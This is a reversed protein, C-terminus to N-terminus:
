SSGIMSAERWANVSYDFFWEGSTGQLYFLWNGTSHSYMYPFFEPGSFLWGAELDYFHINNEGPASALYGFGLELHNVLPYGTPFFWGFWSSQYWGDVPDSLDSFLDELPNADMGPMISDIFPRMLGSIDPAENSSYNLREYLVEWQDASPSNAEANIVVFLPQGGSTNFHRFFDRNYDEMVTEIGYKAIFTDSKARANGQVNLTIYTIPLGYPNGGRTQYHGVIGDEVNASANACFPCWWAFWELVLVGGASGLKYLSTTEGTKYDVLQYDEVIDGVQYPQANLLGSISLITFLFIIKKM